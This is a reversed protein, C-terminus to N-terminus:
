EDCVSITQSDVGVDDRFPIITCRDILNMPVRHGTGTWQSTQWRLLLLGAVIDSTVLDVDQPPLFIFHM